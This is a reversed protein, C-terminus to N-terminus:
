AVLPTPLAARAPEAPREFVLLMDLITFFLRRDTLRTLDTIKRSVSGLAPHYVGLKDTCFGLTRVFGWPRADVLQFGAREGLAGLTQRNFYWLHEPVKTYGYWRSGLLKADWSETDPTSVILRGGPKLADFASQLAQLPDPFHEIADWMTVVDFRERGAGRNAFDGVEVDVGYRAHAAAAAAASFDMGRADWGAGRALAIFTGYGCGVDLLRGPGGLDRVNPITTLQAEAAATLAVHMAGYGAYGPSSPDASEFYHEGYLQDLQQATPQPSLRELRCTQCQVITFRGVRRRATGRLQGCLCAIQVNHLSRPRSSVLSPM